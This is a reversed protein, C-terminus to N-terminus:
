PRHDGTPVTGRRWCRRRATMRVDSLPQVAVRPRDNGPWRRVERRGVESSLSMFSGEEGAMTRAASQHAASGACDRKGLRVTVWHETDGLWARGPWTTCTEKSTRLVP